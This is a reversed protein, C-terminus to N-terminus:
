NKKKKKKNINKNTNKNIGIKKNIGIIKNIYKTKLAPNKRFILYEHTAFVVYYLNIILVMIGLVLVLMHMDKYYLLACIDGAMKLIAIPLRGHPSLSKAFIAYEAANVIDIIFSSLLMGNEAKFIFYLLVATLATASLYIRRQRKDRLFFRLNYIYILSDPLIWFIHIWLGHSVLLANIEWALNLMGCVMPGM